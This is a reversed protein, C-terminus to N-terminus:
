KAPAPEISFMPSILIPRHPAAPAESLKMLGSGSTIGGKFHNNLLVDSERIPAKTGAKDTDIVIPSPEGSLPMVYKVAVQQGDPIETKSVISPAQRTNLGGVALALLAAAVSAVAWKPAVLHQFSTLLREWAISLSSQQLLEVRQREHLKVLLEEVFGAPPQEYRKLGILKQIDELENM